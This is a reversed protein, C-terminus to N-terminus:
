QKDFEFKIVKEECSDSVDMKGRSYVNENRKGHCYLYCVFYVIGIGVVFIVAFMSGDADEDMLLRRNGPINHLKTCVDQYCFSNKKCCEADNSCAYGPKICCGTDGNNNSRKYKSSCTIGFDNPNMDDSCCDETEDCEENIFCESNDDDPSAVNIRFTKGNKGHKIKNYKYVHSHHFGSFGNCHKDNDEVTYLTIM